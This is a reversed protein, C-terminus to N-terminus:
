NARFSGIIKDFVPTMAALRDEPLAQLVITIMSTGKFLFYHSHTGQQGSASDRFRYLYSYGPLGGQEVEKADQLIEVGESAKVIEDTVAKLAPLTDPGVPTELAVVRVLMSDQQNPSAILRVEPDESEYREWDPPYGISFGAGDDRFEVLGSENTAPPSTSTSPRTEATNGGNDESCAQLGLVSALALVSGGVILVQKQTMTGGPDVM